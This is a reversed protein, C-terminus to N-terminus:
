KKSTYSLNDSVVDSGLSNGVRWGDFSTFGIYKLYKVSKSNWTNILSPTSVAM